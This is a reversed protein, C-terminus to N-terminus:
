AALPCDPRHDVVMPCTCATATEARRRQDIMFSRLTPAPNENDFIALDGPYDAAVRERTAYHLRKAVEFSEMMAKHSKSQPQTMQALRTDIMVSVWDMVRQYRDRSDRDSTSQQQEAWWEVHDALWQLDEIRARSKPM